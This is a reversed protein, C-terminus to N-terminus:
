PEVTEPDIRDYQRHTGVFKTRVIQHPYYVHVVLRYKNGGIDFIVRNDGVFDVSRFQARIDAPGSWEAQRVAHFWATLPGKAESHRMWFDRLMRRAVIKMQQIYIPGLSTVVSDKNANAAWTYPKSLVNLVPDAGGSAIGDECVDKVFRLWNRSYCAADDITSGRGESYANATRTYHEFFIDLAM